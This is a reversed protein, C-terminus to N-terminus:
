AAEAKVAIPMLVANIHAAIDEDSREPEPPPTLSRVFDWPQLMTDKPAYFGFNATAAALIGVLLDERQQRREFRSSLAGLQRPSM